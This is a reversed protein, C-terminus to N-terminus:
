VCRSTYLLCSHFLAELESQTIDKPLNQVLLINFPPNGSVEVVKKSAKRAHEKQTVRKKSLIETITNEDLGKKRLKSMARRLSRKLQKRKLLAADNMLRKKEIIAKLQKTHGHEYLSAYSESKAPQIQVRRGNIELKGAFDAEFRRCSEADKFSLFCSSTLKRSGYRSVDLIGYTEELVPLSNVNSTSNLDFRSWGALDRPMKYRDFAPNIKSILLAKFNALSDPRQPVNSLYVTNM